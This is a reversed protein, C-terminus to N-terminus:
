ERGHERIWRRAHESSSLGFSCEPSVSSLFRRIDYWHSKCSKCNSACLVLESDTTFLILSGRPNQPGGGPYPGLHGPYRRPLVRSWPIVVLPIYTRNIKDQWRKSASWLDHSVTKYIHRYHRERKSAEWPEEWQKSIVGTGWDSASEEGSLNASRDLSSCPSSPPHSLLLLYPRLASESIDSTSGNILFTPRHLEESHPQSDTYNLKHLSIWRLGLQEATWVTCATMPLRPKHGWFLQSYM